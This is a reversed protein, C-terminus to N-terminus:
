LEVEEGGIIVRNGRKRGIAIVYVEREPQNIEYFVRFRNNPGCCLEWDAEFEVSRTLPKRNRTEINPEFRLQNEIERRILSHYKQDITKLHGKVQTAYILKFPNITAM